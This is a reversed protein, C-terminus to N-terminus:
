LVEQQNMQNLNSFAKLVICNFTALKRGGPNRPLGLRDKLQLMSQLAELDWVAVVEDVDVYEEEYISLNLKLQFTTYYFLQSM